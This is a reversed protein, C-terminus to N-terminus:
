LTDKSYCGEYLLRTVCSFTSQDGIFHGENCVSKLWVVERNTACAHVPRLSDKSYCGECPFRTVSSFTNQDGIRNGENLVSKLWVLQRELAHTYIDLHTRQTVDRM